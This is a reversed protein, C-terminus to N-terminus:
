SAPRKITGGRVCFIPCAGFAGVTSVAKYGYRDRESSSGGWLHGNHNVFLAPTQVRDVNFTTELELWKQKSQWFSEGGMTLIMDSGNVARDLSTMFSRTTADDIVSAALRQSLATSLVAAM